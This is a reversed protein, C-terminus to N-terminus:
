WRINYGVVRSSHYDGDDDWDVRYGEKKLVDIQDPHIQGKTLYVADQGSEAAKKIIKFIDAMGDM